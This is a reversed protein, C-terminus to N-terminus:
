LKQCKFLTRCQITKYHRRTCMHLRKKPWEKEFKLLYSFLRLIKNVHFNQNLLDRTPGWIRSFSALTASEAQRHVISQIIISQFITLLLIALVQSSM